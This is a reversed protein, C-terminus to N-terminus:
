YLSRGSDDSDFNRLFRRRVTPSLHADRKGRSIKASANAAARSQTGAHAALRSLLLLKPSFFVILSRNLSPNCLGRRLRVKRGWWRDGRARGRSSTPTSCAPLASSCVSPCAPPRISLRVPIPVTEQMMICYNHFEHTELRLRVTETIGRQM